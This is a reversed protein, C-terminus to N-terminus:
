SIEAVLSGLQDFNKLTTNSRSSSQVRVLCCSQQDKFVVCVKSVSHMHVLNDSAGPYTPLAAIEDNGAEMLWHSWVQFENWAHARIRMLSSFQPIERGSCATYVGHNICGDGRWPDTTKLTNQPALLWASPGLGHRFRPHPDTLEPWGTRERERERVCVGNERERATRERERECVYEWAMGSGPYM